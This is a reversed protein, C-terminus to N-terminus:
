MEGGGGMDMMESGDGNQSNMGERESPAKKYNNIKYSLTFALVPSQIDFKRYARFDPGSSTFEFKATDFLDRVSLTLNLKNQFLDQRVALNTFMFGERRGQATNSPSHYMVDFQIKTTKTVSFINNLRTHWNFSPEMLIKSGNLEGEISYHYANGMLNIMWWKAPNTNLMLELGSSYDAGINDVTQLMINGEYVRTIREIKNNTKRHYLEASVFGKGLQKQYGLEYSDIYEPEIAPNGMRVNYADEYTIFPELFFGRPREIRRSYSALVQQEFPLQLSLHLTPFWDLRNITFPEASKSYEMTRNTYETRLGAQIGLVNGSRSFTAYLAHIDRKFYTDSYYDSEPTPEYEDLIEYWHVDNWEHERDIRAQYGAELKLEQTFPHVYDAKFRFQQDTGVEWNKQGRRLINEGVYQNYLSYDEGNGTEYYLYATLEQGEHDFTKKYDLGFNLEEGKGEGLTETKSDFPDDHNSFEQFDSLGENYRNRGDVGVNFTLTNDDDFYYDFGTKLAWGKFGRQGLGSSLTSLTDDGLTINESEFQGSRRRDSLNGSVFFNIKERKFNLLFDGSLSGNTDASGNVIGSVGLVKSKKTNINIIGANGDPDYKASPNTIIEINRITSAPIQDLADAAEFPTPRGDILVTFNSSGRMTVNGEIDVVVSPTNALVDTATGNATTPFQAPDIIKKDLEYVIPKDQAFVNVESLNESAPHLVIVGLDVEMRNRSVVVNKEKTHEYGIFKADIYYSGPALDSIVFQGTGDAIGGGALTSDRQHYVAINAYELPVNSGAEVIKGRISGSRPAESEALGKGPHESPQGYAYTFVFLLLVAVFFKNM